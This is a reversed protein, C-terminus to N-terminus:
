HCFQSLCLRWRGRDDAEVTHLGVKRRDKEVQEKWGLRPRGRGVVGEVEIELARRIGYWRLRSRRVLTVIDENLGVM